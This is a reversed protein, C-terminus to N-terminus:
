TNEDNVEGPPNEDNERTQWAEMAEKQTGCRGSRAGCNCCMVAYVEPTGRTGCEIVELFSHDSGCFPCPKLESEKM